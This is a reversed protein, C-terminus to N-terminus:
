IVKFAGMRVTDEIVTLLRVDGLSKKHNVKCGFTSVLFPLPGPFTM